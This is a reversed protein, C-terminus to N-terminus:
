RFARQVILGPQTMLTCERVPDSGIADDATIEYLVPPEIHSLWATVLEVSRPIQKKLCEEEDGEDDWFDEDWQREAPPLFETPTPTCIGTVEVIAEHEDVQLDYPMSIANWWECIKVVETQLTFLAMVVRMRDRVDEDTECLQPLPLTGLLSVTITTSEISEYIFALIHIYGPTAYTCFLTPCADAQRSSPQRHFGSARRAQDLM